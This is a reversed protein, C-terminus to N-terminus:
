AALQYEGNGIKIIKNAVILKNLNDHITQKSLEKTLFFREYITNTHISIKGAETNEQFFSILKDRTTNDKRGDVSTILTSEEIQGTINICCDDDITFAKVVESNCPAYRFAVDKIYQQGSVTRNLGIMYDLEQAIVRSGAITDISLPKDYMKHTHHILMLTSKTDNALKHLREMVEKAVSSDEISGKYCHTLSDMVVISPQESNIYDKVLDWDKDSLLYRPMREDNMIYNDLFDSGYRAILRKAQMGNREVRNRYYEEMSYIVVKKNTVNLPSGLYDCSGAAVNLLLNEAFTTKGSKSPGFVVGVSNEKIGSYLMKLPEEHEVRLLMDRLSVGIKEKPHEVKPAFDVNNNWDLKTGNMTKKEEFNIASQITIDKM